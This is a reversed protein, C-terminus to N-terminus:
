EDGAGIRDALANLWEQVATYIPEPWPADMLKLAAEANRLAQAATERDRAADRTALAHKVDDLTLHGGRDFDHAYDIITEMLDDDTSPTEPM